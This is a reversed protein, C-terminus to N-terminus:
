AALGARVARGWGTKDIELLRVSEHREELEACVAVSGDTCGNAVLILEHSTIGNSWASLYGEVIGAVHDAQNHIPLVISHTVSEEASVFVLGYRAGPTRM